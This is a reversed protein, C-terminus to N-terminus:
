SLLFTKKTLGIAKIPFSTPGAARKKANRRVSGEAASLVVWGPFLHKDIKHTNM